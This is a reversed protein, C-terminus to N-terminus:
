YHALPQLSLFRRLGIGFSKFNALGQAPNAPSHHITCDLQCLHCYFDFTIPLDRYCQYLDTTVAVTNFHSLVSDFIVELDQLSNSQLVEFELLKVLQGVYFDKTEQQFFGHPHPSSLSPAPTTSQWLHLEAVSTSLHSFAELTALNADNFKTQLFNEMAKQSLSPTPVM